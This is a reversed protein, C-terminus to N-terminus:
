EIYTQEDVTEKIEATLKNQYTLKLFHSIFIDMEVDSPINELYLKIWPFSPHDNEVMMENFSNAIDWERNGFSLYEFDILKCETIDGKLM